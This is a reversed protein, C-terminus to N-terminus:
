GLNSQKEIEMERLLLFLPLGLSVGVALNALIGLWWLKVPRRRTEYYM